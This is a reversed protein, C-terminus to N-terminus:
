HLNIDGRGGYVWGVPITNVKIYEPRTITGGPSGINMVNVLYYTNRTVQSSTYPVVNDAVQGLQDLYTYYYGWGGVHPVSYTKIRMNRESAKNVAGATLYLYRQTYVVEASAEQDYHTDYVYFTMAPYKGNEFDTDDGSWLRNAMLSWKIIDAADPENLTRIIRYDYRYVDPLNGNGFYRNKIVTQWRTVDADTFDDTTLGYTARFQDPKAEYQKVFEDMRAAYDKLVVINRPTLRATISVHTVAPISGDYNAFFSGDAPIDFYNETCYMGRTYRDAATNNNKTKDLRSQDFAEAQAFHGTMIANVEHLMLGNYYVFDRDYLRSSFMNGSIYASLNMNMDMLAGSANVHPFIYTSKNMGNPIYRVNSLRIWGIWNAYEDTPDDQATKDEAHVYEVKQGGATYTASSALVHMKAVIRSVDTTVTMPDDESTHGDPITIVNGTTGTIRFVGTMPISGDASSELTSQHGDSGPVLENIVDWYDAYDSASVADKGKGGYSIARRMADTPNAVAYIYVRQGKVAAIPVVLGAETQIAAVQSETLDIYDTLKNSDADYVFLVMTNVANERSTGPTEDAQTGDARSVGPVGSDSLRLQFRLLVDGGQAGNEEPLPGPTIDDSCGTLVLVATLAVTFWIKFLEIM